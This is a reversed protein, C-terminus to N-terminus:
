WRSLIMIVNGSRYIGYSSNASASHLSWFIPVNLFNNRQFLLKFHTFKKLLPFSKFLLFANNVRKTKGNGTNLNNIILFHQVSRSLWRGRCGSCGVEIGVLWCTEVHWTWTCAPLRSPTCTSWAVAFMWWFTLESTTTLTPVVRRCTLRCVPDM